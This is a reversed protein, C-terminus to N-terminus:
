RTQNVGNRSPRHHPWRLGHDMRCVTAGSRRRLSPPGPAELMSPSHWRTDASLVLGDSPDVRRVSGWELLRTRRTLNPPTCTTSEWTQPYHIYGACTAWKGRHGIEGILCLRPPPRCHASRDVISRLFRPAM